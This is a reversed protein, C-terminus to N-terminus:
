NAFDIPGRGTDGLFHNITGWQNDQYYQSARNWLPYEIVHHMGRGLNEVRAKYFQNDLGGLVFVTPLAHKDYSLRGMIITMNYDTNIWKEENIPDIFWVGQNHWEQLHCNPRLEINNFTRVWHKFRSFMMREPMTLEEPKRYPLFKNIHDCIFVVKPRDEEFLHSQKWRKLYSKKVQRM